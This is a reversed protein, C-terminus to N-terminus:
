CRCVVVSINDIGGEENALDVLKKVANELSELSVADVMEDKTVLGSLGDSCLLLQDGKQLVRRYTNIERQLQPFVGVANTVVNKQDYSDADEPLILGDRIAEAVVSQDETLLWGSGEAFLYARSDGVQSIYAVGDEILLAVVTTGMGELDPNELGTEYIKKNAHLIASELRLRAPVEPNEECYKKIEEIAMRSAVEGGVHGGMGDAVIYLGLASDVLLADENSSRVRGTDTLGFALIKKM